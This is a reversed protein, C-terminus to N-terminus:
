MSRMMRSLGEQLSVVPKFGISELASTSVTTNAYFKRIRISNISFQKGTIRSALDFSYGGMLGLLYPLVPLPTLIGLEQRIYNVLERVSMDPKDAYNFLHTGEGFEAARILFDVLNGVYGM